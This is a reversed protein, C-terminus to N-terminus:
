ELVWHLLWPDTSGGPTERFIREAADRELWIIIEIDAVPARYRAHIRENTWEVIEYEFVRPRLIPQASWTDVFDADLPSQLLALTERCTGSSRVCMVQVSNLTPLGM